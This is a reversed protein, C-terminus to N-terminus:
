TSQKALRRFQVIESKHIKALTGLIILNNFGNFLKNLTGHLQDLDQAIVEPLLASMDKRATHVLYWGVLPGVTIVLLAVISITMWISKNM